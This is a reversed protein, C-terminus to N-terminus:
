RTMDLSNAEDYYYITGDEGILNQALKEIKEYDINKTIVVMNEAAVAMETGDMLVLNFVPKNYVGYCETVEAITATNEGLLIVVGASNKTEKKESGCGTLLVSTLLVSVVGKKFNNGKM